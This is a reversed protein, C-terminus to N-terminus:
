GFLSDLVKEKIEEFAKATVTGRKSIIEYPKFSQILHCKAFSIKSFPVTVKENTLEVSFEPNYPKSSIMIAYYAEEAEYYNDGSIIIAPHIKINGDPLEFVVEVIDRKNVTMM